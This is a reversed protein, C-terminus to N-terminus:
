HSFKEFPLLTVAYGKMIMQGEDRYSVFVRLIINFVTDHMWVYKRELGVRWESIHSIQIIILRCKSNINQKTAKCGQYVATTMIPRDTLRVM